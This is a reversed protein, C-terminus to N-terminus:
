LYLRGRGFVRPGQGAFRGGRSVTSGGQARERMKKKEGAVKGSDLPVYEGDENIQIGGHRRRDGANMITHEGRSARYADYYNEAEKKTMGPFTKMLNEIRDHVSGTRGHRMTHTEPIMEIADTTVQDITRPGGRSSPAAMNKAFKWSPAYDRKRPDTSDPGWDRLGSGQQEDYTGATVSLKKRPPGTYATSGGRRGGSGGAMSGFGGGYAASGHSM